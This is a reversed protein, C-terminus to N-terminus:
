FLTRSGQQPAHSEIRRAMARRSAFYAVIVGFLLMALLNGVLRVFSFHPVVHWASLPLVVYNMVAFIVVGYALGYAFWRRLLAPRLFSAGLYVAAILIGMLEQLVAGLIVTRTGGAFSQQALLGGAITQLIFPISHGNILRAAGIDITAAIMGGALAAILTRATERHLIPVPM